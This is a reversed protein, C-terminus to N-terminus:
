RRRIKRILQLYINYIFPEKMILCMLLYLTCGALSDFFIIILRSTIFQKLQYNVCVLIVYMIVSAFIPKIYSKSLNFYDIESKSYYIILICILLEAIVSAFAAGNAGAKPILIYNLLLNLISGSFLILTLINLKNKPAYYVNRINNSITTILIQPALIYLTITAPAYDAGFFFPIFDNAIVYLGAMCPCVILAMLDFLKKIKKQIEEEEKNKILYVIRSLMIPSIANVMNCPIEEIRYAQQYFALETKSSLIGIMTRDVMTYLSVAVTPLFYILAGRFVKKNIHVGNRPLSIYTRIYYWSALSVFFDVSSQILVYLALDNKTKVLIFILIVSLIKFFVTSLSIFKFKEVGQFFFTIDCGTGILLPLFSLFVVSNPSSGFTGVLTLLVFIVSSFLMLLIRSAFISWFASSYDSKDNRRKSIEQTGYDTFGFSIILVFYYAISFAYSYEGIGEPMLVRSLYPATLLPIILSVVKLIVNFIFSKKISDANM